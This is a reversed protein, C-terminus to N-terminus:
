EVAKIAKGYDADSNITKAVKRYVTKLTDSKPMKQAIKVLMNSKEYDSGFNATQNTLSIWQAETQINGKMLKDYVNEKQMDSGFHGVINLVQGTLSEPIANERLLMSIINEKDWDSGFHAVMDLVQEINTESLAKEKLMLSILNGKDMDSGFEGGIKIIHTISSDSYQGKKIYYELMDMKAMDSGLEQVVDLWANMIVSDSWDRPTFHKLQGQRDMDNGMSKIQQLGLLLDKQSISDCKFVRNLYASKINDAKMVASESLLAPVGGRRYIKEIRSDLNFGFGIMEKVAEAIIKKRDENASIDTGNISIEYTLKGHNDSEILLKKENRVYKLHGGPTISAIDDEGDNFEIKGSWSLKEYLNDGTMMINGDNGEKGNNVSLHYFRYFVLGFAVLFFILKMTHSKNTFM